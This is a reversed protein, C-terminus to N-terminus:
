EGITFESVAFAVEGAARPVAYGAIFSDLVARVAAINASPNRDIAAAAAPWESNLYCSVALGYEFLTQNAM